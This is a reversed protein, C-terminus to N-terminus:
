RGTLALLRKKDMLKRELEAPDNSMVTIPGSFNTSKDVRSYYNTTSARTPVSSGRVMASQAEIGGAALSAISNWQESTLVAEPKGTANDTLTRGMALIGGSDYGGHKVLPDIAAISGYRKVAYNSGAYINAMPDYIDSSLTPNRYANFTGDITQMLGKSPHGAKANSDTLNIARPNGGSEVNIRRLLADIEAAPRGLMQLVQNALSSWQAAGGGVTSASAAKADVMPQYKEAIKDTIWNQPILKNYPAIAGLAENMRNVSPMAAMIAKLDTQTGGMIGAPGYGAGGDPGSDFRLNSGALTSGWGLYQHGWNKEFFSIPVTGVAAMNPADTSRAMGNGAYIAIHGAAARGKTFIPAGIPPNRDGPHQETNQWQSFATPYAHGSQWWNQVVALCTNVINTAQLMAAALAQNGTRGAVKGGAAFAPLIEDLFMSGMGGMGGSALQNASVQSGPVGPNQGGTLKNLQDKPIERNRIAEMVHEGYYNVSSVPHVYEGATLWAPINDAKPHSSFGPIKGGEAYEGRAKDMANYKNYAGRQQPTMNAVPDIGLLGLMNVIDSVVPGLADRLAQAQKQATGTLSSIAKDAVQNLDGTIQEYARSFDERAQDMTLKHQVAMRDMGRNFNDIMRAQQRNHEDISIDTAIKQEARQDDMGRKFNALQTDLSHATDEAGRDMNQKFSRNMEIWATNDQDTVIKTASDMRNQISDNFAKIMQPNNLMEDAMRAVQQQKSPDNLGLTSIADGSLGAQRLQALNQQQQDMRRQQDALNALLNQASSTREVQVRSYADYVNKASEKAMQQVQHNFDAEARTRSLNYNYLQEDRQIQFDRESRGRQRNFSDEQLRRSRDYDDQGYNLQRYFDQTSQTRQLAYATDGRSAQIDFEGKAKVIGAFYDRAAAQDNMHTATAQKFADIAGQSQDGGEIRQRAATFGQTNVAVTQGQTFGQIRQLSAQMGTIMQQAADALKSLPDNADNIAAKFSMLAQVQDVYSGNLKVTNAVLANTADNVAGPNGQGGNLFTNLAQGSTGGMMATGLGTGRLNTKVSTSISGLFDKGVQGPMNLLQGLDAGPNATLFQQMWKAQAAM